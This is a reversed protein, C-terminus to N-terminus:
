GLIKKLDAEPTSIPTLGFKEVLANLIDPSIFAPLSPGIYISIIGLSLLTLLICVVKHECWLLVLTLPLDNIGCCLAEARAIAVLGGTRCRGHLLYRGAM